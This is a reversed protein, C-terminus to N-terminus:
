TLDPAVRILVKGTVGDQVADHASATEELPFWTLPLGVEAGFLLGQWRAHKALSAVIPATFQDGNNNTYYAISRHNALVEVDLAGNHGPSVEVVHDVGSPALSAIKPEASHESQSM